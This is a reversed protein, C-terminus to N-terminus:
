CRQRCASPRTPDDIHWDVVLFSSLRLSQQGLRALVSTIREAYQRDSLKAPVIKISTPSLYPANEKISLLTNQDFEHDEVFEHCPLNRGVGGILRVDTIELLELRCDYYVAGRWTDFGNGM